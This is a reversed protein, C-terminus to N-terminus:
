ELGGPVIHLCIEHRTSDNSPLRSPSCASQDKLDETVSSPLFSTLFFFFSFVFLERPDVLCLSSPRFLSNTDTNAIDRTSSWLKWQRRVTGGMEELCQWLRCGEKEEVM